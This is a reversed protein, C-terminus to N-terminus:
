AALYAVHVPSGCVARGSRAVHLSTHITRSDPHLLLMLLCLSQPRLVCLLM